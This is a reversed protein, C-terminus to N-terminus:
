NNIIQGEMTKIRNKLKNDKQILKAVAKYRMAIAAGSINGFHQGLEKGSLCTLKRSLYIAADRAINRKKGKALIQEAGVGFADGAVSIIDGV